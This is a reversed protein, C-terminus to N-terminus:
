QLFGKYASANNVPRTLIQESITYENGSANKVWPVVTTLILQINWNTARFVPAAMNFMSSKLQLINQM